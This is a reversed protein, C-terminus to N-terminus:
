INSPLHAEELPPMNANCQVEQSLKSTNRIKQSCIDEFRVCRCLSTDSDDHADTDHLMKFAEKIRKARLGERM